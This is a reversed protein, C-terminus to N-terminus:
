SKFKCYHQIFLYAVAYLKGYLLYSDILVLDGYVYGDYSYGKYVKTMYTLIRMEFMKASNEPM